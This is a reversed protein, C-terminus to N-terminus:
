LSARRVLMSPNESQINRGNLVMDALSKGMQYFDTSITTIGDAVVEKLPTDNYSIIGLDCGISLGQSNAVKVLTVLDDDCPVIYVEGPTIELGKLSSVIESEWQQVHEKCFKQFGKMQGLPEKGGPFVLILKRYKSLLDSGSKLASYMDKKFNQYVAPYHKQLESNTQDLMYVKNQPLQKVVSCVDKFNAPMIVYSTYNGVSDEILNKFVQRNFHHFFIDVVAKENLNNLFSNYLIEKFANFEDFLLFIKQTYQTHLSEVYYGKGPVSNIIGRAKLENFAVLVTDRSLSFEKCVSNISPIKDGRKLSGNMIASNVSNIIQRYKPVGANDIVHIFNLSM